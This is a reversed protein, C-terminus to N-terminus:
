YREVFLQMALDREFFYLLEIGALWFRSLPKQKLGLDCAAQFMGADHRHIPQSMVRIAPRKIRHTEHPTLAQLFSDRPKM